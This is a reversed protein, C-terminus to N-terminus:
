DYLEEKCNPCLLHGETMFAMYPHGRDICDQVYKQRNLRRVQRIMRNTNQYIM